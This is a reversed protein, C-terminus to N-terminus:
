SRPILSLVLQEIERRFDVRDLAWNAYTSPALEAAAKFTEYPIAKIFDLNLLQSVIERTRYTSQSRGLNTVATSAVQIGAQVSERFLLAEGGYFPMPTRALARLWSSKFGQLGCQIDFGHYRDLAQPGLSLLILTNFYAEVFIRTNSSIDDASFLKPVDRQGVAHHANQAALLEVIALLGDAGFAADGDFVAVWEVTADIHDLGHWIAPWKGTPESQVVAHTRRSPKDLYLRRDATKGQIVALVQCDLSEPIESITERLDTVSKVDTLLSPVIVAGSPKTM